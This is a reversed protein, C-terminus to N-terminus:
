SFYGCYLICQKNGMGEQFHKTLAALYNNYKKNNKKEKYKYLTLSFKNWFTLIM